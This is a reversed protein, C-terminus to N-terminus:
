ALYLGVRKQNYAASDRGDIKPVDTALDVIISATASYPVGTKAFPGMGTLSTIHAVNGNADFMPAQELTLHLPTSPVEVMFGPSIMTWNLNANLGKLINWNGEHVRSYQAPVPPFGPLQYVLGGAPNDLVGLGGLCVLRCPPLLANAAAKAVLPLLTALSSARGETGDDPRGATMICCRADSMLQELLVVDAVNGEVVRVGAAAAAAEDRLKTADRVLVTVSVGPREVLARLIHGGLRGTAGLLLVRQSM